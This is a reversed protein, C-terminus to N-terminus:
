NFRIYFSIDNPNFNDDVSAPSKGIVKHSNHLQTIVERTDNYIEKSENEMCDYSEFFYNKGFKGTIIIWNAKNNLKTTKSLSSKILKEFSSEFKVDFSDLPHCKKGRLLSRDHTVKVSSGANFSVKNVETLQKSCSSIGALALMLILFKTM